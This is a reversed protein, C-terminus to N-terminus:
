QAPFTQFLKDLGEVALEEATIWRAGRRVFTKIQFLNEFLSQQTEDFNGSWVIQGNSVRILVMEFAVSAASNVSYGTGERDIFRYVKGALVAEAQLEHGVKVM